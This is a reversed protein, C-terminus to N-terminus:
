TVVVLLHFVVADGTRFVGQQGFFDFGRTRLSYGGGASREIVGGQTVLDVVGVALSEDVVDLLM